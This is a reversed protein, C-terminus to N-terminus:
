LWLFATPSARATHTHPTSHEMVDKRHEWNVRDREDRVDVCECVGYGMGSMYAKNQWALGSASASSDSDFFVFTVVVMLPVNDAVETVRMVRTSNAKNIVTVNRTIDSDRM